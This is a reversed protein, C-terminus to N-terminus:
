VLSSGLALDQFLSVGEGEGQAASVPAQPPLHLPLPFSSFRFLMHRLPYVGGRGSCQEM